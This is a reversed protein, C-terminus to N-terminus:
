LPRHDCQGRRQRGAVVDDLLALPVGITLAAAAEDHGDRRRSGEVTRPDAWVLGGRQAPEDFDGEDGGEGLAEEGPSACKARVNWGVAVAHTVISL